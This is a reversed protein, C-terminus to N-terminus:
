GMMSQGSKMPQFRSGVGESSTKQMVTKPMMPTLKLNLPELIGSNVKISRMNLFRLDDTSTNVLQICGVLKKSESIYNAIMTESDLFFLTKDSLKCDDM